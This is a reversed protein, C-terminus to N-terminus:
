GNSKEWSIRGQLIKIGLEAAQQNRQPTEEPVKAVALQIAAMVAKGALEPAPQISAPAETPAINAGSWFAAVGSWASATAFEAAEAAQHAARGRTENPDRVWAEALSLQSVAAESLNTDLARIVCTTWWVSHRKQLGYALLPLAESSKNESVLRRVAAEVSEGNSLQPALEALQEVAPFRSPVASALGEIVRSGGDGPLAGGPPVARSAPFQPPYDAAVVEPVTDSVSGGTAGSGLDNYAVTFETRGLRVVDSAKLRTPKSLRQDNVYTGNMSGLDEIVFGGDPLSQVQAHVSSVLADDTIVFAASSSRGISVTHGPPVAIELGVSPGSKATMTLEYM